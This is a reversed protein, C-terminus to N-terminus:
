EHKDGVKKQAIIDYFHWKKNDSERVYEVEELKIIRYKKLYDKVKDIPFTNISDVVNWADRDGFLQGVFYGDDEISNYIKNWLEDFNNPNCFPISFFATLLNTRPLEVDEFSSEKFSIMKKENDSLRNLIFDQNLQRDIALVKIGNKIMYVTENGSGCGLDIANDIKYNDLFEILLKCVDDGYTKNQYNTWDKM